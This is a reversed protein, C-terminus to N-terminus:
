LMLEETQELCQRVLQEIDLGEEAALVTALRPHIRPHRAVFVTCCDEYPLISTEFTGIRRAILITDDKDMGILPRLIPMSVAQATAEVAEITQSAVQGLSEGTVLAQGHNQRAIREAVRLMMRRMLITLLDEPGHERLSLQTETFSVVHLKLRGTYIALQRALAVVKERAQESTFPHAHFYVAQLEMGRSAMMYGAVPSDIGGSLLLLGRGGTGVPLGKQGKICDSYLYNQDRVEIFLTFGPNHVDVRIQGPFAKLVAEGVLSSIQPSQYPFRKNGRRSEIKFTPTSGSALKAGALAVAQKQIEAIDGNFRIAPSASVIGFVRTVCDLLAPMFSVPELPEIWIRSQSLSARFSGIDKLRRKLNDLLRKEFTGRNLGKLSIEGIRALIIAQPASSANLQTSESMLSRRNRHRPHCNEAFPPAAQEIETTSNSDSLSIRIACEALPKAVGMALLVPSAASRRSSCAAGTSVMISQSALARQMVPGPIGPFAVALIHPIGDPPSLLALRCNEATLADLFLRRLLRVHVVQGAQRDVAMQTALACAAALPPNETGSRRGQQQGGGHILPELRIGRRIALWGIGKPAGCKHGSGSLLDVGSHSFHFPFKGLTQVADLHILTQPALEDRLRVLDAVANVAGTENSVHIM